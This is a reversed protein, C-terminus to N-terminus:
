VKRKIAVIRVHDAANEARDAIDSIKAAFDRLLIKEGSSLGSTFIADLIQYELEDTRSELDSVRDALHVASNYDEFLMKVAKLLERSCDSARGLLERFANGLEAPVQIREYRIRRAVSDAANAIRDTGELLTLIDGRSEPFLAKGYLLIAAEQRTDDAQSEARHTAQAKAVVTDFPERDLASALCEEVRDLCDNVRELYKAVLEELVKQKRSFFV